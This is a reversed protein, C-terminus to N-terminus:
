LSVSIAETAVSVVTSGPHVLHTARVVGLVSAYGGSWSIASWDLEDGHLVGNESPKSFEMLSSLNALISYIVGLIALGLMFFEGVPRGLHLSVELFGEPDGGIAMLVALVIDLGIQYVSSADVLIDISRSVRVGIVLQSWVDANGHAVCWFQEIALVGLDTEM